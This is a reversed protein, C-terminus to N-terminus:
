TTWPFCKLTPIVPKESHDNLIVRLRNEAAAQSIEWIGKFTNHESIKKLGRFLGLTKFNSQEEVTEEVTKM